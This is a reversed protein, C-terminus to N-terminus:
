QCPWTQHLAAVVTISRETSWSEPHAAAYNKFSQIMAGFTPAGCLSMLSLWETTKDKERLVEANVNMMQATATIYGFCFFYEPSDKPAQCAQYLDQTTNSTEAANSATAIVAASIVFGISLQWRALVKRRPCKSRDIM